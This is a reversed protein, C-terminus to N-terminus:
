TFQATPGAVCIKFKKDEVALLYQKRVLSERVKRKQDAAMADPCCDGIETASVTAGDGYRAVLADMLERLTRTLKGSCPNDEVFEVIMTTVAEGDQDTGVTVENLIFDFGKLTDDRQKTLSVSDKDVRIETDVMAPLSSHGRAREESGHGTHHVRLVTCKEVRMLSAVYRNLKGMLDADSDDGGLANMLPDIIVLDPPGKHVDKFKRMIARVEAKGADDTLPARLPAWRFPVARDKLAPYKQRLAIMRKKMARIGEYGLYLVRGQKVRNGFWPLGCAIAAAMDLVVFTKGVNWKGFLVANSQKDLVRKVLYESKLVDDPQVDAPHLMEVDPAAPQETNAPQDSAPRNEGEEQVVGFGMAEPTLKGAPDQAYLFSNAIKVELEDADWPPVCRANWDRLAEAAREKPVGFDRLRCLTRFTHHDGGQGQVAVPHTELFNIARTVAAEVDTVAAADAAPREPRPRVACRAILAADAEAIPEDAVIRYEGIATRSGAAVVYGNQNARVDLGAGLVDVGNSVNANPPLRYYLHRGRMEPGTGPTEVELTAELPGIEVELADLSDLGGKAADADVVLMGACAIGINADPWSNWWGRITTEDTTAVNPWDTVLPPSKAGARLPFVRLGRRAHGLAIDVTM